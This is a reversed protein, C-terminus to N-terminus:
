RERTARAGSIVTVWSRAGFFRDGLEIDYNARDMRPHVLALESCGDGDLDALPFARDGSEHELDDLDEFLVAGNVGSVVRVLGFPVHAIPGPVPPRGPEVTGVELRDPAGDGDFDFALETREARDLGFVRETRLREGGPYGHVFRTSVSEVREGPVDIAIATPDLPDVSVGFRDFPTHAERVEVRFVMGAPTPPRRHGSGAAVWVSALVLLALVIVLARGIAKPPANPAEDSESM